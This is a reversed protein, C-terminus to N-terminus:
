PSLKYIRIENTRRWPTPSQAVEQVSDELVVVWRVHDQELRSYGDPTLKGTLFGEVDARRQDYLLEAKQSIEQLTKGALGSAAGLRSYAQSSFYGDLGTMAMVAFNTSQIGYSWVPKQTIDTPLYAVVDTPDATSRIDTLARATDRGFATEYSFNFALMAQIWTLGLIGWVIATRWKGRNRELWTGVPRLAFVGLMWLTPQIFIMGIEVGRYPFFIGVMFTIAFARAFVMAVSRHREEGLDLRLLAGVGFLKLGYALIVFVLLSAL